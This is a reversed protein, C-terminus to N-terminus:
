TYEVYQGGISRIYDKLQKYVNLVETDTMFVVPQWFLGFFRKRYVGGHYITKNDFQIPEDILITYKKNM